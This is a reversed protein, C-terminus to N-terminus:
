ANQNEKHQIPKNDWIKKAGQLTLVSTSFPRYDNNFNCFDEMEQATEFVIIDFDGYDWDRFACYADKM